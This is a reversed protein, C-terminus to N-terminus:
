IHVRMRNRRKIHGVRELALSPLALDQLLPQPERAPVHDKIICPRLVRYPNSETQSSRASHRRIIVHARTHVNCRLVPHHMKKFLYIGEVAQNDRSRKRNPVHELATSRCVLQKSVFRPCLGAVLIGAEGSM